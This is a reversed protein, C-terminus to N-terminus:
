ARAEKLHSGLSQRAAHLTASVTGVEVGLADAIAAYDFDLYHRLFLADRQRQPLSRVATRVRTDVEPMEAPPEGAFTRERRRSRVLDRAANIVCRAIWAELSGAGRFRSRGRIARSFGEQVADRALEPDGTRAFAFRFFDAGRDRYVAEIERLSPKVAVCLHRLVVTSQKCSYDAASSHGDGLSFCGLGTAVLAPRRVADFRWAHVLARLAVLGLPRVAHARGAARVAAAFDLREARGRRLGM